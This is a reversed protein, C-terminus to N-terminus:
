LLNYGLSTAMLAYTDFNESTLAECFEDSKPSNFLAMQQIFMPQQISNSSNLNQMNTYVFPSNSIVKIGNQFIDLTAGNWKIAIKPNDVTTPFLSVLGSGGTSDIKWIGIRATGNNRFSIGDGSNGSNGTNLFLSAQTNERTYPINNKLEVFWTGGNASILQNTRINNRTFIDANRQTIQSTTPIYTTAYTSQELQAGWIIANNSTSGLYSNCGRLDSSSIATGNSLAFFAFASTTALSATLTIRVWSSNKLQTITASSFTGGGSGVGSTFTLTDLDFQAAAWVSTSSQQNFVLRCYRSAGRLVFLSYTYVTGSTITFAGRYIRHVDTIATESLRDATTLGDPSVNTNSSITAGELSWGTTFDESQLCLNTRQPELLLAPCSGYMYSLRPVDLRNTTPFYPLLSGENM